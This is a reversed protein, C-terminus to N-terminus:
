QSLYLLIYWDQGIYIQGGWTVICWDSPPQGVLRGPHRGVYAGNVWVDRTCIHYDAHYMDWGYVPDVGGQVAQYWLAPHAIMFSRPYWGYRFYDSVYPPQPLVQYPTILSEETGPGSSAVFCGSLGPWTKGPFIAPGVAARCVYLDRTNEWAGSVMNLPAGSPPTVGGSPITFWQDKPGAMSSGTALVLLVLAIILAKM